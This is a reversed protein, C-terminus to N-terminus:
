PAVGVFIWHLVNWYEIPTTHYEGLCNLRCYTDIRDKIFRVRTLDTRAKAHETFNAHAEHYQKTVREFLALLEDKYSM